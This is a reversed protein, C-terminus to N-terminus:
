AIRQYMWVYSEEDDITTAESFKCKLYFGMKSKSTELVIYRCGIQESLDMALGVCWKCIYSGIGKLRLGNEVGLRGILLSPYFRLSVPEKPKGLRKADISSMALTVYGAMQKDYFFLYTVGQKEKQFLKAEDEQHIFDDCGLDDDTNCHFESLDDNYNLKRVSVKNFDITSPL